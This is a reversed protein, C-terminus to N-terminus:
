ALRKKRRWGALAAAGVGLLYLLIGPIAFICLNLVDPTPTLIAAVTFIILVAWRFNQMLFKPTVLGIQSLMFIALPMQFMVGLGLLITLLFRFYADVSIVNNFREGMGLLFDVAFPFAIYYGFLGGGLFFLTGLVIFPIAYLKEKKYLGPAIFGWVQSLIYPSTLFVAGFLAIKMYFFFPTTPSFFALKGPEGDPGLPLLEKIPQELVDYIQERVMWCVITGVSVAILTRVLRKRLEELHEILSMRELEEPEEAKSPLSSSPLVNPDTM